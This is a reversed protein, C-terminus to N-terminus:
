SSTSPRIDSVMSCAQVSNARVPTGLLGSAVGKGVAVLDARRSVTISSLTSLQGQVRARDRLHDVGDPGIGVVM